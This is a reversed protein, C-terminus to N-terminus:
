TKPIIQIPENLKRVIESVFQKLSPYEAETFLPKKFEVVLKLQIQTEGVQNAMFLLSASGDKNAVRESKPIAKITYLDSINIQGIIETKVPTGLDVPYKREESKFPNTEYKFLAFPNLLIEDGTDIIQDGLDVSNVLTATLKESNQDKLELSNIDVLPYQDQLDEKFQELDNDFQELKTKFRVYGYNLYKTTITSEAVGTEDVHLTFYQKTEDNYGKNLDVWELKDSNQVEWKILLGKGNLCKTPLIGAPLNEDSADILVDQDGIRALVVVYNLQFLDPYITLLLGNSRTSLVIPYAEIDLKKLLAVLMLNMDASNGSHKKNYVDRPVTSAWLRDTKDWKVNDRIDALAANLKDMPDTHIGKIVKAANNLFISERAVTGFSPANDLIRMVSYWSDSLMIGWFGKGYGISTMQFKFKTIYNSYDNLFPEEKFSPMNHVVWNHNDITEIPEFGMAFKTYQIAYSEELTLKCYKKPIRDQFRWENPLGFFSYKIDIVSGVKVGPAFVKYWRIQDVVEEEHISSSKAIIKEVDDGVLNFVMVKFDSKAPTGFVQNAYKLGSKKLIKIRTHHTFRSQVGDFRGKEYLIVAGATTDPEYISMMVEEKSVKGFKIKEQPYTLFAISFFLLILYLKKM